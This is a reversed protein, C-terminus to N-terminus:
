TKAKSAKGKGGAAKGTMAKGKKAPLSATHEFAKRLWARLEEPEDLVSEPLFVTDRMIRGNGMPDFMGAGDIALAAVFYGVAVWATWWPRDWLALAFMGEM